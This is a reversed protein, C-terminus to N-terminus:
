GAVVPDGALTIREWAQGNWSLAGGELRLWRVTWAHPCKETWVSVELEGTTGDYLEVAGVATRRDRYAARLVRTIPMPVGPPLTAAYGMRLYGAASRRAPLGGQGGTAHLTFRSTPRAPNAISEGTYAYGGEHLFVNLALSWASQQEGYDPGIEVAGKAQLHGVLDQFAETQMIEQWTM